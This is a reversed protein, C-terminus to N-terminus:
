HVGRTLPRRADFFTHFLQFIFIPFILNEIQVKWNAIQMKWNASELKCKGIKLKCKEIQM